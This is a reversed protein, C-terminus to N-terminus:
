ILATDPYWLSVFGEYNLQSAKKWPVPRLLVTVALVSAFSPPGALCAAKSLFKLASLMPLDMEIILLTCHGVFLAETM